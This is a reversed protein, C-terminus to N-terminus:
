VPANTRWQNCVDQSATYTVESDIGRLATESCCRRFRRRTSLNAHHRLAVGDDNGQRCAIQPEKGNRGDIMLPLKSLGPVINSSSNAHATCKHAVKYVITVRKRQHTHMRPVHLPIDSLLYLKISESWSCCVEHNARTRLYPRRTVALRMFWHYKTMM